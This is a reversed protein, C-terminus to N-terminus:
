TPGHAGSLCLWSLVIVDGCLTCVCEGQVTDHVLLLLLSRMLLYLIIGGTHRYTYFEGESVRYQIM